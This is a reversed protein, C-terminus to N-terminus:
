RSGQTYRSAARMPSLATSRSLPQRCPLYPVSASFPSRLPVVDRLSITSVLDVVGLPTVVGFYWARGDAFPVAWRRCFVSAAALPSLQSSSPLCLCPMCTHFRRATLDKRPLDDPQCSEACYCGTLGPVPTRVPCENTASSAVAHAIKGSQASAAHERTTARRWPWAYHQSWNGVSLGPRALSLWFSMHLTGLVLTLDRGDHSVRKSGSSRRGDTRLLRPFGRFSRSLRPHGCDTARRTGDGGNGRTTTPRARSAVYQLTLNYSLLLWTM